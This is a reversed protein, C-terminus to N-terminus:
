DGGAVAAEFTFVDEFDATAAAAAAGVDGAIEFGFGDGGDVQGVVGNLEALLAMGEFVEIEKWAVGFIELEFVVEVIGDDIDLGGM